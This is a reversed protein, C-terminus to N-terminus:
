IIENLEAELFERYLDSVERAANIVDDKLRDLETASVVRQHLKVPTYSGDPERKRSIEQYKEDETTGWEVGDIVKVAQRETPIEVIFNDTPNFTGKLERVCMQYFSIQVQKYVMRSNWCNKELATKYEYIGLTNDIDISDPHTEIPVVGGLLCELTYEIHPHRPIDRVLEHEPQHEMLEMIYSGFQIAKTNLNDAGHFFRKIYTSKGRGGNWTAYDSYHFAGARPLYIKDRPLLM